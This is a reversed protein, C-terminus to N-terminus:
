CVGFNRAHTLSGPQRSQRIPQASQFIVRTKPHLHTPLDDFAKPQLVIIRTALELSEVAQKSQNLDRYLDTGSLAVILPNNPHLSHFRKVSRYSRRAHLAIMLDCNSDQYAQSIAVQLGLERLINAWGFATVRNGYSSRPPAPTTIIIKMRRDFARMHSIRGM